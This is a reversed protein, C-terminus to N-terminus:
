SDTDERDEKGKKGEKGEKGEKDERGDRGEGQQHAHEKPWLMWVAPPGREMAPGCSGCSPRRRLPVTSAPAGTATM